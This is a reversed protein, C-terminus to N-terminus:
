ETMGGENRRCGMSLIDSSVQEGETNHPITQALFPFICFLHDCLDTLKESNGSSSRVPRQSTAFALVVCRKVHVRHHCLQLHQQPVLQLQPTLREQDDEKRREAPRLKRHAYIHCLPHSTLADSWSLMTCEAHMLSTTHM